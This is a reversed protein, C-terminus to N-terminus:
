SGVRQEGLEVIANYLHLTGASLIRHNIMLWVHLVAGILTTYLAISMGRILTAVMPAIQEVNASQQPDVGSLAVIFGIVTGVLGLFVLTGAIYRISSIYHTMRLRLLNTSIARSEPSRGQIAAFYKAARSQLGPCGARVDNLEVSTRWVKVVCWVLGLSFVGFIGLSLMGTYDVLADKLWGELYIAVALATAVINFLAVRLVMLYRYRVGMERPGVVEAASKAPTWQDTALAM